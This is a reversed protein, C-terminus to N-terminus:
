VEKYTVIWDQIVRYLGPEDEYYQQQSDRRCNHILVGLSTGGYDSLAAYIAAAVNAASDPDTAWTDIQLRADIRGTEGELTRLSTAESVRQYTVSPYTPSQPLRLPYVRAGGLAAFGPDAVLIARVASEMTM